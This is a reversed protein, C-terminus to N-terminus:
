RPPRRRAPTRAARKPLAGPRVYREVIQRWAGTAGLRTLNGFHGSLSRDIFVIDQPFRLDTSQSWNAAGLALIQDYVEPDEGFRYPPDARLIEGFLDVYPDLVQRPIPVSDKKHIGLRALADPLDQRRDDLVVRVLEAYGEAIEPPVRKLCGFDYVVV